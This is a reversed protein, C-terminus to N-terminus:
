KKIVKDPRPSGAPRNMEFINDVFSYDM